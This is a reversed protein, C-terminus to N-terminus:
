SPTRVHGVDDVQVSEALALGLFVPLLLSLDVPTQVPARFGLACAVLQLFSLECVRHVACAEFLRAFRLRDLFVVFRSVNVRGPTDPGTANTFHVEGYGGITTREEDADQAAAQAARAGTLPFACLTLAATLVPLLPRM